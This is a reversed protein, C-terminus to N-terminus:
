YETATMQTVELGSTKGRGGWHQLVLVREDDLERYGEVVCSEPNAWEVSGYIGHEWARCISRALDRNASAM